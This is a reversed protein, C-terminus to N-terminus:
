SVSNEHVQSFSLFTRSLGIATKPVFSLFCVPIQESVGVMSLLFLQSDIFLIQM